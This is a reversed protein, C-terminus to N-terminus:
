GKTNEVVLEPSEGVIDLFLKGFVIYLWSFIPFLFGLYYALFGGKWSTNRLDLFFQQPHILYYSTKRKIIMDTYVDDGGVITELLKVDKIRPFFCFNLYADQVSEANIPHNYFVSNQYDALFLNVGKQVEELIESGPNPEGTVPRIMGDADRQYGTTRGHTAAIMSEFFAAGIYYREDPRKAYLYVHSQEDQINKFFTRNVRMYFGHIDCSEGLIVSLMKQSRGSFGSDVLAVNGKCGIQSLYEKLNKLQEISTPNSSKEIAARYPIEISKVSAYFYAIRNKDEPYMKKYIQCTQLMDRACFLVKDYKNETVHKHIWQCFGVIMAGFVEYGMKTCSDTIFQCQNNILKLIYSNFFEDKGDHLYSLNNVNPMCVGSIGAIRAGFVDALLNDGFHVVDSSEIAFDRLVKKFLKGHTKDVGHECSVYINEIDYGASLLMNRIVDSSLYMDSVAIIKKGHGKAYCYLDYGNNKRVCLIKELELEIEKCKLCIEKELPIREYIQLLTPLKKESYYSAEAKIRMESFHDLQKGGYLHNYRQEILAFLDKPKKCHRIILTDFVDFFIYNYKDIQKQASAIFNQEMVM